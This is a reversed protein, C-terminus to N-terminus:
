GHSISARSHNQNSISGCVPGWKRGGSWDRGFSSRFFHLNLFLSVWLKFIHKYTWYTGSGGHTAPFHLRFIGYCHYGSFSVLFPPFIHSILMLFFYLELFGLFSLAKGLSSMVPNEGSIAPEGFIRRFEDHQRFVRRLVAPIRRGGSSSSAPNLPLFSLSPRLPLFLYLLFPNRHHPHHFSTASIEATAPRGGGSSDRRLLFSSSPLSSPPNEPSLSSPTRYKLSTFPSPRTQNSSILPNELSKYGLSAM